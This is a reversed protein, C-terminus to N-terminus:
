QAPTVVRYFRTASTLNPDTVALPGTTLQAPIDTLKQWGGTDVLDRFQVTYTKGAVATFGLTCVSGNVGTSDIKLYSAASTPNTGALFENLDSAGDSDFDGTGDRALTGFNAMEWADNMGDGDADAAGASSSRGATPAAALWNVPDNGYSALTIRQLSNSGSAAGGPWPAAASYCVKDVLIQPVFGADPHPELQVADPRVLEISDSDNALRGTWPGLVPVGAPVNFKARFAALAFVDTPTFNVVLLRSNAALTTGPPFEFDVANRLRWHNTPYTPDFLPVPNVSINELEIFEDDSNELGAVTPYYMAESIVVPGVKAGSNPLGTGLRFEAVTTPNGAGFTRANMATFDVGVSTQFRGFSVGNEAAGFKVEARYGTLNGLADAASLIASDGHASNFTFATAGSNFETEYFVRYGNAALTTGDAIRLKKFNSRDNSLYWGGIDADAVGPNFLEMADELPLDTHTLVENVVANTLPLYNSEEPSSTAPFSVFAAAGDPFRGQSVGMTQAGFGIADLQAGSPSYIGIAEGTRKLSFNAHDAGGDTNGDAIIQVFGNAGAGIFSLPAVKSQFKNATDDTLFLGGLAVPQAATNYVEFWDGGSIPDAMWENVRLASVNGLAAATNVGEPTPTTLTWNGTGNPVRGIAFDPTQLGYTVGDLLGGGFTMKDFLYVVGGKANLAFGTNTASVPAADDCFIIKQTRAGVTSGPPFIWQRPANPDDSLSLGALDVLNTTPNYIEISDAAHGLHNTLSRNSALIENLVLPVGFTQSIVNTAFQIAGLSMGFVDDSSTANSQHVEVAVVNDGTVLSNTSFTLIEATGEATQDGGPSAYLVPSAAVRLRSVETGNLYFVAGDDVYNTARLQFGTLGGAWNFHARYYVTNQGGPQAPAPITTTFPYAYNAPTTERGFLGFGSSWAADNFAPARWATGQDVGSNDWRWSSTTINLLARVTSTVNTVFVVGSPGPNPAGGTPQTFTTITGTGSPSRGESVDTRQPGYNICDILALSAASLLIVGVDPSLKFNLHDAGQGADSDAIFKTFGGGAIFSLPAILNKNPSGAADSLFLGGLPGPLTDPNYLEIFDNNAVFQADALWENIKLVRSDGTPQAINATGFAPKCLGWVGGNLRGISLDPLQLGFTVSDLLAGGNAPSAYLFVDDGSDKLSFGTHLYPGGTGNDAYVVLYARSALTTGPPFTFKYHNTAADTLGLGSLDITTGGDNFLEILDPTTSGNILTTSNKALVENLRVHSYSANVTWTLSASLHAPVGSTPAYVFPDDQYYGADNRGTVYVTHPGNSLNSVTITPLATFPPNNVVPIEASFAGGDLKWKFATWGWRQPPTTGWNFTGGPGVTLTVRNSSTTGDPEGSIAIGFPNLGGLDRGGFAAGGAPSGPVLQFAQRLQAATVSAVPTGALVGLNLHPDVYQNGSGPGAWENTTGKFQEPLINNEVIVTLNAPNYFRQLVPADYIINHAAYLGSGIAPDPLVINDDSWDFVAIEAATSGSSEKAVHAVTNYLFAVRGGGNGTTTSNGKNLFVHDVDYFLNNIITWDSNQGVTDVGGSIASGTDIAQDTRTPDRHVHMFINGEIWADTSDLDLCDDSAGDFVNNIFQLIAGPRNGGTFDITDNFGWTHGFYNDRFIGYGGAPIGNIGHLSEPGTPPPYSPFTCNQVVFSSADFSIYEVVPTPPWTCHDIFIISGGNVHIQANHGGVTTGGCSDFDVYALRSEVMTNIFDLSGWNGAAAPNKGIRIRGTESGQALIRGTGNVTITVGSAVYVTTGPQITLTIGTPVTLNATINYPGGGATWTTNAALTSSATAVSGDDYWVDYNTRGVEAGDTGFAQVLVRNIGPRLAVANNTWRGEWASYIALAGNVRIVKTDIANAGGFLAVSATTTSPYGGGSPLGSAATLTRPIQSMVYGVRSANFAKFNDINVQPLWGTFLHDLLPNMQASSFAGEAYTRLWYYYRPAFEPTKFLRDMVALPFMRFISDASASATLGRGMLTDADYPLLLFRTDNTGRYLAYDDGIGNDPSTENNDLLTNIAFYRMWEEVNVVRRMDAGYTGASSYGAIVNLTGLLTILDSWDNPVPNNQKFYANTYAAQAINAGHWTFDADSNVGAQPDRIGRYSNGRADLPFSRQVFDDNYQENATYSGFSNGNAAAMQNTSNVRLQVGRADAMPVGLKRFVASGLVQSQAYQSNLNIGSQNKWKRDNPINVHFNHPNATRSGHGRNRVGVNYRLQTTLGGTLVGDSTIWTANMMADSDTTAGDDSQAELYAREAGTLILRYVPQAGAYAGSDVQYLLNATRPNGGPATWDPYTRLNNELDRATLFFEVITANAQAPLIAGFVGDNALGDGHAGDDFMPSANFGAAGDLRWRLTVTLGNSHEDAIRATITVPDAPQPILPLHTVDAIFPAANNTAVSNARGPTSSTNRNAAWNHAFNNPLAPNLLELSAGLGDHPTFWEWGLGNFNDLAGPVGGAGLIRPAWDGESAFSVSDIVNGAADSIELSHGLTGAWGAVYNAVGPNRSVFAPGNAAVVLFAGPALTTNAAFTFSIGKTIQWGSLNVNTPGPNLLEFWQELLNTSPPHYMIESIVVPQAEAPFAAFVLAVITASVTRLFKMFSM